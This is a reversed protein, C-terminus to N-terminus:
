LYDPHNFIPNQITTTAQKFIPNSHSPFKINMREAEFKAFERRDHITTFAKWLLVTILGVFVIAGILGFILGLYDAPPPCVEKLGDDTLHLYVQRTDFIGAIPEYSFIYRCNNRLFTCNEYNKPIDEPFEESYTLLTQCRETANAIIGLREEETEYPESVMKEDQFALFEVCLRLNECISGCVECENCLPGSWGDDTCICSDCPCIGHGSCILHPSESSRCPDKNQFCNCKPGTWPPNCVCEGCVCKGQGSCTQNSEDRECATNDCVNDCFLGSIIVGEKPSDCKCVGCDCSGRGSCLFPFSINPKICTAFIDDMNITLNTNPNKSCECKPGFFDNSCLCEGCSLRGHYNCDQSQELTAEEENAVGESTDCPCECFPEVEVIMKDNLSVPSVAFTESQCETLRFHLEFNKAMGLQVNECKPGNGECESTIRSPCSTSSNTIAKISTTIKEYQARVLKVINSSDTSIQGATSGEVMTSLMDYLQFKDATVAWIMSVSYNKALENIFAISPYDQHKAYDYFGTANLHCQGDNPVVIGGLKGDGAIHFTQDTTFIIVRRAKDRWGVQKSCVIVQVLGDFGGEPNDINGSLPAEKVKRQFLRADPGLSMQHQFSYPLPCKKQQCNKGKVLSIYPMVEKDVFSGFGIRFDRTIEQISSALDRGLKVINDRDDSMSNSLDMLYYLDVPYQKAHAVQFKVTVEKGVRARIKIRQPRIQVFDDDSSAHPTLPRDELITIITSPDEVLGCRSKNSSFWEKLDCRSNGLPFEPDVCWVCDINQICEDCSKDLATCSNNRKNLFSGYTRFHDSVSFVSLYLHSLSLYLGLIGKPWFM